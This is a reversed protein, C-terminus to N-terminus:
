RTRSKKGLKSLHVHWNLGSIISKYHIPFYLQAVFGIFLYHITKPCSLPKPGDYRVKIVNAISIM